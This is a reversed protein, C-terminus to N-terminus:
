RQELWPESPVYYESPGLNTQRPGEPILLRLSLQPTNIWDKEPPPATAVSLVNELNIEPLSENEM